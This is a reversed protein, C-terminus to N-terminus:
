VFTTTLCQLTPKWFRDVTLLKVFFPTRNRISANDRPVPAAPIPTLPGTPHHQATVHLRCWRGPKRSDSRKLTLKCLSIQWMCVCARELISDTKSEWLITEIIASLLRNELLFWLLSYRFYRFVNPNNSKFPQSQLIKYCKLKTKKTIVGFLVGSCRGCCGQCYLGAKKPWNMICIYIFLALLLLSSM